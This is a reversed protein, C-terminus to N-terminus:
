KGQPLHFRRLDLILGTHRAISPPNKVISWRLLRLKESKLREIRFSASSGSTLQSVSLILSLPLLFISLLSAKLFLLQSKGPPGGALAPSVLDIGSGPLDQICQLM